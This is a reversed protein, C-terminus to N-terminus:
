RVALPLRQGGQRLQETFSRAAGVPANGSNRSAETQAPADSAAPEDAEDAQEEIPEAQILLPAFRGAAIDALRKALQQTNFVEGRVYQGAVFGPDISQPGRRQETPSMFVGAMQVRQDDSERESQTRAVENNIFLTPHLPIHLRTIRDFVSGDFFVSSERAQGDLLLARAPRVGVASSERWYSFGEQTRGWGSDTPQIVPAVQVSINWAGTASRGSPDSLTYNITLDGQTGSKPTFTIRGDDDLRITGQEVVIIQGPRVPQGNIETVRLPDGNPDTATRVVDVTVPRGDPSDSRMVPGAKPKHDDGLLADWRPKGDPGFVTGTGDDTITATGAAPHGGLPTVTLTLTESDEPTADNIVPVRILVEGSGPTIVPTGPVYSQWTKGNDNSYEIVPQYDSGPSATGGTIAVELAQGPTGSVTYVAHPSAENVQPSTVSVRRDDDPQIYGPTGKTTPVPSGDDNFIRGSGDDYITATGTSSHGGVPTAQLEVTEGNDNVSDNILPVRMLFEGSVPTVVAASYAHWSHGNDISYQLSSQYDVGGGTATGGIIELNVSQGATGTVSYVIHPSAENVQPSSVTVRRDDDPVVYGPVGPTTPALAGTSTFIGGTSDDKITATGTSTHGGVPTVELEVTEGTDLESDNNLAVRVLVTASAPTVVPTGTTYTSWSVGNDTSYEISSQYDTGATATGSSGLALDISQGATGTVSYVIHPSAENVQPSSVTVRRDDDPVVYGSDGPTTPALGGTGTFISGTGDDKITATGVTAHGGVVTGTLTFTESGESVTDNTITTRVLVQGNDATIAVASGSYTQWNEGGDTSYQISSGYDDTIDATGDALALTISQGKVGEVVFVGHTSAENVSIDAISLLRDDDPVVYGSDGPTTPALGGTGTFISGTGDDKITATGTASLGGASQV